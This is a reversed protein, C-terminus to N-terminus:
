DTGTEKWDFYEAGAERLTTEFRHLLDHLEVRVEKSPLWNALRRLNSRIDRVHNVILWITEQAQTQSM